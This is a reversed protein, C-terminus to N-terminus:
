SQGKALLSLILDLKQDQSAVKERLEAIEAQETVQVAAAAQVLPTPEMDEGAELAQILRMAEEKDVIYGKNDDQARDAVWREIQMVQAPVTRMEGAENWEMAKRYLWVQSKAGPEDPNGRIPVRPVVSFQIGGGSQINM